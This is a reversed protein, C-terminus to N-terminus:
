LFKKLCTFRVCSAAVTQRCAHSGRESQITAVLTSKEEVSALDSFLALTALEPTLYWSHRQMMSLCVDRVIEDDYTRLRQILLLDNIPQDSATRSTFWSELYVSVVFRNLCKISMLERATLQLQLVTENEAFLLEIKLWYIAKAMWKARHMAGPKKVATECPLGVAVAALQLLELYDNCPHQQVTQEQIFQRLNDSAPILPPMKYSM